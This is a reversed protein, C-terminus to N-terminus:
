LANQLFDEANKLHVERKENSMKDLTRVMMSLRPNSKFFDQHQDIFRWFLGDWIDAWDGTGYNSMKKIYNSGGIYPKTAFTGGDAFQSMGYINPVMVWDYADIFLEMFWRYVEDPDFECLLMFNGLIMLREIHHCYGTKLVKKIADDVPEIGTTGDYFSAPIKRKFKWYNITRSYRGKCEYMGRIFERWGMIQRVFGEVSNIPIDDQEAFALSRELVEDPLILGANILPSLVSHNLISYEKVIADEYIGFDYFRYSLFQDLWVSTEEHNIPYLRTSSLEGPNNPFHELTYDLAEDWFESKAPFHVPPPTAKKPFKKRNEDDYTWKGGAPKDGDMLIGRQKRQQKYFSTQFLSKKDSRFFPALESRENLFQPNEHVEIECHEGLKLIRQELWDDTPDIYVIKGISKDEIEQSFNRLDALGNESEIYHVTKGLKILYQEYSKMSARHFAIKQKHFNFERFFLHEEILYVEHDNKLLTSESFLQHPFIINITKKM